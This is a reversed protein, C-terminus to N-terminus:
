VPAHLQKTITLESPEASRRMRRLALWVLPSRVSMRFVQGQNADAWALVMNRSFRPLTEPANRKVVLHYHVARNELMGQAQRQKRKWFMDLRAVISTPADIVDWTASAQVNVASPTWRNGDGAAKFDFMMIAGILSDTRYLGVPLRFGIVRYSRMASARIAHMGGYMGGRALMLARMAGASPGVTPVGTAGHCEPNNKLASELHFFADPRVRIYGDVFFTTQAGDTWINHIYENWAGAKDGRSISWVRVRAGDTAEHALATAQLALHPNGNVIIDITVATSCARSAVILTDVCSALTGMSERCAFVAVAWPTQVSKGIALNSNM